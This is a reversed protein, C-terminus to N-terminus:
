YFISSEEISFSSEQMPFSSVEISFEGASCGLRVDEFIYDALNDQADCGLEGCLVGGRRQGDRLRKGCGNGRSLRAQGILDDNKLLLIKM